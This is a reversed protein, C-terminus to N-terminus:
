RCGDDSRDRKCGHRCRCSGTRSRRNRARLPDYGSGAGFPRQSATFGFVESWRAAMASPNSSQIDVALIANVHKAQNQQWDPGGWLWSETPTMQDFSLIAGGVDKPHVHYATVEERETEWVARVGLRDTRKRHAAIDDVQVIVMYGCDGGRRDIYRETPTNVRVPSVVELFTDGISMVSNEIGFEAVGPDNFDSALGLM